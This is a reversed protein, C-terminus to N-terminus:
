RVGGLEAGALRRRLLDLLEPLPRARMEPPPGPAVSGDPKREVFVVSGYEPWALKDGEHEDVHYKGLGMGYSVLKDEFRMAFFVMEEGPVFRLAGPIKFTYGDLTGGVQYITLLDGKAAGKVAEIVEITTLTLIRRHGEDWTVQQAGVRAHVIVEAEDTMRELPVAVVTTARAPLALAAMVALATWAACRNTLCKMM